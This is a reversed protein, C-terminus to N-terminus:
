NLRSGSRNIQQLAPYTAEQTNKGINMEVKPEKAGRRRLRITTGIPINGRSDLAGQDVLQKTYYAVDGNEGWLGADSKLGLNTLVQGFTDGPKYTYTITDSDVDYGTFGPISPDQSPNAGPELTQTKNKSNEMEAAANKVVSRLAELFSNIKRQTNQIGEAAKADEQAKKAEAQAQRAKAEAKEAAKEAKVQDRQGMFTSRFADIFDTGAMITEKRAM